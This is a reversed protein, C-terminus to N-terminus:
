IPVLFEQSQATFFLSDGLLPETAKLSNFGMWLFSNCLKFYKMYSSKNRQEKCAFLPMNLVWHFM